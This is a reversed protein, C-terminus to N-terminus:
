VIRTPGPGNGKPMTLAIMGGQKLFGLWTEFDRPVGLYEDNADIFLMDIPTTWTRVIDFSYGELDHV